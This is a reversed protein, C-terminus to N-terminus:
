VHARGIKRKATNDIDKPLDIITHRNLRYALPIEQEVAKQLKTSYFGISNDSKKWLATIKDTNTNKAINVGTGGSYTLIGSSWTSGNYSARYITNGINWLVDM